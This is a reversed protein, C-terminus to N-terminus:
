GAALRGHPAVQLLDDGGGGLGAEVGVEDGSANEQGAVPEFPQCRAAEVVHLQRDLIHLGLVGVADGM